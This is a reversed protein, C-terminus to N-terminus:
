EVFYICIFFFLVLVGRPGTEEQGTGISRHGTDEQRRAGAGDEALNRKANEQRQEIEEWVRKLDAL